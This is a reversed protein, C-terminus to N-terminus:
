AKMLASIASRRLLYSLYGVMLSAVTESGPWRRFGSVGAMSRSNDVLVALFNQQPVAAKLILTPRFLCVLLVALAALRLAVLVFRDRLRDAAAVGRYTLLAVVAAAAVGGSILLVSRSFAWAVDGQQFMLPPYKFLFRFVNEM